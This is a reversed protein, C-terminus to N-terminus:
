EAHLIPCNTGIQYGHVPDDISSHNPRLLPQQTPPRHPGPRRAACWWAAGLTEVAAGPRFASGRLAAPCPQPHPALGPPGELLLARRECLALAAAKMNRLATPTAVFPRGTAAPGTEGRARRPLLIGCLDV